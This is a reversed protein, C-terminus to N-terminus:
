DRAMEWKRKYGKPTNFKIKHRSNRTERERKGLKLHWTWQRTSVKVVSQFFFLFSSFFCKVTSKKWLKTSLISWFGKNMALSGRSIGTDRSVWQLHSQRRAWRGGWKVISVKFALTRGKMRCVMKSPEQVFYTSLQYKYFILRAHFTVLCKM